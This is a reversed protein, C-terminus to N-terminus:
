KDQAQRPLSDSVVKLVFLLVTHTHNAHNTSDVASNEALSAADSRHKVEQIPTGTLGVAERRCALWTYLYIYVYAHQYTCIYINITHHVM